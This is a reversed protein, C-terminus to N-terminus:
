SSIVAHRDHEGFDYITLRSQWLSSDWLANLALAVGPYHADGYDDIVVTGGKVMRPMVFGLAAKTPEYLDVDIHAFAIRSDELGAFTGPIEGKHFIAFDAAVFRRADALSAAGFMGVRPYSGDQNSVSPFGSFTDFLRLTAPHPQRRMVEALLRASGGLFVGCEWFEGEFKAAAVAHDYLAKIRRQKLQCRTQIAELIQEYSCLMLDM